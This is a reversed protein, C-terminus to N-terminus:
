WNVMGDDNEKNLITTIEYINDFFAEMKELRRVMDKYNKNNKLLALKIELIEKETEM